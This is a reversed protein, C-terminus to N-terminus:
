ADQGKEFILYDFGLYNPVNSWKNKQEKANKFLNIGILEHEAKEFAESKLARTKEISEKLQNIIVEKDEIEIFKRFQSWCNQIM